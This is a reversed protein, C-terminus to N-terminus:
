VEYEVILSLEGTNSGSNFAIWVEDTGCLEIPVALVSTYILAGNGLRAAGASGALCFVASTQTFLLLARKRNPTQTLIPIAGEVAAAMDTALIRRFVTTRERVRAEPASVVHVPVPEIDIAPTTM